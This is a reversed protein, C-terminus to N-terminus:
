RPVAAPAWLGVCKSLNRARVESSEISSQGAEVLQGLHRRGHEQGLQQLLKAMEAESRPIPEGRVSAHKLHVLHQCALFDSQDTASLILRGELIWMLPAHYAPAALATAAIAAAGPPRSGGRALAALAQDGPPAVA